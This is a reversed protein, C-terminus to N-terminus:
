KREQKAPSSVGMESKRLNLSAVLEDETIATRDALIMDKLADICARTINAHSMNRCEGVVRESCLATGNEKLINVILRKAEEDTPNTFEIVDDFRRFLAFDISDALNTAFLLVSASKDNEILQLLANVVRNMEAVDNRESTRSTSLSDFEDFLYVGVATNIIRFLNAVNHGTDGLCKGILEETRVLYFPLGLQSALVHSTMTKGTGSPGHLLIKRRSDLGHMTLKDRMRYELCIRDFAKRVDPRLVVDEPKFKPERQEVFETGKGYLEDLRIVRPQNKRNRIAYDLAGILKMRNGHRNSASENEAISRVVNAFEDDSKYHAYILNQIDHIQM